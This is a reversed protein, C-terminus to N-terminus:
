HLPRYRVEIYPVDYPNNTERSLIRKGNHGATQFFILGNHSTPDAIWNKVLDTLDFRMEESKGFGDWSISHLPLADYDVGLLGGQIGGFNNWTTSGESFSTLVKHIFVTQPGSKWQDVWVQHLTASVIISDSPIDSLDFDILAKKGTHLTLSKYTGYQDYNNDGPSGQLYADKYGYLADNHGSHIYTDQTAVVRKTVIPNIKINLYLSNPHITSEKSYIRKGNDGSEQKFILGYHTSPKKIWKKITDTLVFVMKDEGGEGDWSISHLPSQGYHIGAVGGQGNGFNNWTTTTESFPTLLNSMTIVQRGSSWPDAWMQHLHASTIESKTPVFSLDFDVMSVKNTHITMNKYSGYQDYTSDGLTGELYADQFGYVTDKHGSHIYTDKSPYIKTSSEKRGGLYMATYIVDATLKASEEAIVQIIEDTATGSKQLAWEPDERHASVFNPTSLHVKYKAFQNLTSFRTTFENSANIVTDGLLKPTYDSINVVVNEETPTFFKLTDEPWLATRTADEGDFCHLVSSRDQITHIFSGLFKAAEHPQNTKFATSAKSFYWQAGRNYRDTLEQGTIAYFYHYMWTGEFYLYPKINERIQTDAYSIHNDPNFSYKNEILERLTASGWDPDDYTHTFIALYNSPLSDIAARTITTHFTSYAFCSLSTSFIILLKSFFATTSFIFQSGNIKKPSSSKGIKLMVDSISLM